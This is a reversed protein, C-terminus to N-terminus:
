TEEIDVPWAAMAKNVIASAQEVTLTKSEILKTWMRAHIVEQEPSLSAESQFIFRFRDADSIVRHPANQELWMMGAKAMLVAQAENQPLPVRDSPSQMVEQAWRQVAAHQRERMENWSMGSNAWMDGIEQILADVKAPDIM